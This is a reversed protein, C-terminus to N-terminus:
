AKKEKRLTLCDILVVPWAFAMLAILAIMFLTSCAFTESTIVGDKEAKFKLRSWGSKGDKRRILKFAWSLLYIAAVAVYIKAVDEASM